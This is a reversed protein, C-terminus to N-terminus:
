KMLIIKRVVELHGPVYARVFYVGSALRSGDFILNHYGEQHIGEALTAVRRGMINYVTVTLEARQPLGVQVNLTPNFPNPYLKSISYKTPLYALPDTVSLSVDIQWTESSYTQMDYQDVALVRWWYVSAELTDVAVTDEIGADFTLPETFEEDTSIQLTYYVTDQPDPDSAANWRFVLPFNNEDPFEFENEPSILSFADPADPIFTSFSWGSEFDSCETVNSDIDTAYVRWYFSTDDPLERVVISTDSITSDIYEAFDPFVSMQITYLLTDGPDPDSTSEWVLLVTDVMVTASEEPALMCFAEPAEPFFTSFHFTDSAWMGDTNSDTARVTWYYDHDDMLCELLFTTDELAETEVWKTSLDSLTDIWVDYAPTDYPDADTTSFWVLTCSESTLTSDMEPLSLDFAAPADPVNVSFSRPVDTDDAWTSLGINDVAKVRYYITSDDPLSGEGASIDDTGILPVLVEDASIISSGLKKSNSTVNSSAQRISASSNSRVTKRPKSKASIAKFNDAARLKGRQISAIGVDTLASSPNSNGAMQYISYFTDPTEAYYYSSFDSKFSWEVSYSVTQGADLDVSTNWRVTVQYDETEEYGDDPSVYAFSQPPTNDVTTFSWIDSVTSDGCSDIAVVKWYYTTSFDLDPTFTTDVPQEAALTTPPTFADFYIRYYLSDGDPDDYSWSLTSDLAIDTAEDSPYPIPSTPPQNIFVKWWLVTDSGPSVGIIDERGDGDLDGTVVDDAYNINDNLVHKTYTGGDNTWFAFEGSTYGSGAFDYDGDGDIDVPCISHPGDVEGISLTDREWTSADGAANRWFDFMDFYSCANVADLDGDDDMDVPRISYSSYRFSFLSHEIWGTGTGGDNEWWAVVSLSKGYTFLDVDGDEDIDASSLSHYVESTDIILETWSTATGDENRWWFLGKINSAGAIDLDGDMDIDALTLEEFYNFTDSIVNQTWNTGDGNTNEWWTLVGMTTYSGALVDIDGDDDMDTPIVINAFDFDTNIYNKNWLTGKGGDNEWWFLDNDYYATGLIDQDGDADIDATAVTTIYDTNITVYTPDMRLTGVTLDVSDSTTFSWVPGETFGYPDFAVIRWYYTTSPAMPGGLWDHLDYYEGNWDEKVMPPETDTGFYVEYTRADNEYDSCLWSLDALRSVSTAGDAPFPHRPANPAVNDSTTFSWIDSQTSDGLSDIASVRWYYTTEYDLSAGTVFTSTTSDEVVTTPPSTDDAFVRYYFPHGEPDSSPDWSLTPTLGIGTEGNAPSPNSPATPPDNVETTFSWIESLTSDGLSGMTEVRWYYTTGYDLDTATITTDTTSDEVVTTPPTFDDGYVRYYFFHGEEDSSSNWVLTTDVGIDTSGSVPVPNSAATPPDNAETTFSWTESLTSDGMSGMTEVRWYYTTGYELDTAAITTDTTSDEVVTVPPTVTDGYIRYYFSHGEEDSSSNWTLTTDIGIDTSGSAPVPNSAATPPDNVETTFSWIDGQTTDGFDDYAVIQWFYTTEYSLTGPAYFTDSTTLVYTAPPSSSGTYLDYTLDDGEPDDCSWRLTVGLDIDTEEDAPTIAVPATPAQNISVAWWTIDGADEATGLVDLDGDGDMDAAYVIKAGDFDSDVTHETWSTGGGDTNEWWAIDNDITAGGLVDVDGDGDMDAAHVGTAGDFEGDIAHESWITGDGNTNEWWVIDNIDDAAGLIDMDGDGDVDAAEVCVAGTFADDVAHETWSTGSGDANEWWSIDNANEAAGLVDIDGDGDMDASSVYFAGDFSGDVTHETWTTGNGNTNQWWTIDDANLAAGLVDMHGDGDVDAACVSLAGDYDGDIAHETWSSGSGDTNEWWTIDDDNKSAGLVDVDGDGDVDAAHVRIAGSFSSRLNQETWSTGLGDTNKWLTIDGGAYSAGLVDLDGDNDVDVAQVSRAGNFEGDITHEAYRINGEDLASCTTFSWTPSSTTDIGDDIRIRWYYTTNEAMPGALTEFPDYYEGTWDEKALPPSASTGFYVDYTLSQNEEDLCLWKLDAIRAVNEANDAPFQYYPTDPASNDKTTFSWTESLTSDGMSGRTVVRWYYTTSYELDTAAITTDTTSDEQVTTPPSFDDGYVRYYFFHGEEDFSSNWTLTTDVGIDTSGSAPVPNSAATPPDNTETTFTWIDSQASDGYEDFVTLRWYYTTVWELTGTACTTDSISDAQITTPPTSTDGYLRYLLNDGEPDSGANWSLTLEVDTDTALDAPYPTSPATPGQNISIEWWAIDDATSAAGLLDMNGDGNVDVACVSIAGDFAGDVTHKTWSTGSSDANEWWIIDDAGSATGLVDMDGDGDVDVAYVSIAGDFEADVTRETWSTGSGDTNEWWTITNALKSAGLVDMDGDDDVDAAYISIAGDLNNNLIHETWSTGSGDTNEWWIFDDSYYAAGLFDMDGDGDVDAAYIGYAYDFAGDVIHETWSTGNGDANEWWTIDDASSAAGLVDLDGDGDMDEAYVSVAADFWNDVTHETWTTGSGNTNEWWTIADDTFAAGLVDMDGDGDVDAAYVSRAGGFADDVMHETWSTGSGDSNEWWIIDNASEAAGLIDMDGDGDVDAAYVDYAADFAGDVLHEDHRITGEGLANCTTFSWIPSTTTDIGDDAVIKWYYTTNEAMPGALANYIDFYEGPWEEEVLPPDDSTGFYIDFSLSDNYDDSCLWSLDATRQIGVADDHPFVADPENPAVNGVTSFTWSSSAETTDGYEDVAIVWWEYQTDYQLRPTTFTTDSTTDMTVFSGPGTLKLGSIQLPVSYVDRYIKYYVADGEPDVSSNWSLTPLVSVNVAEDAPSLLTPLPPARNVSTEWWTIDDALEAAGLLDLDGDGDMDGASIHNAGNFGTIVSHVSWSTGLGDTNEWWALSDGEYAAGLIDSDGDGDMDSIGVYRAGYCANSVIHETWSTGTGDDNEWWTISDDYNAAGLIDVDGDDDVDAAHVWAAGDYEADVTHKAWTTDYYGVNEWWTIDNDGWSAGLIDMDGDDDVDASYVSYTYDYTTDVNHKTWTTGNGETNEWWSVDGDEAASGFVDLDGDGDLDETFACAAGDVADDVTHETWSTGSGDSNEWWTVADGYYSAALVDPDGDADMDKAVVTYPSTYSADVVHETWSTGSGDDNEWWSVSYGAREATLIDMDGDNDMDAAVARFAGDYESDVTSSDHYVPRGEELTSCTTFLWISSATSDVGDKAVIKWYYTTNEAMPGALADYIDFYEGAWNSKVLPPTASTGFYIDYTLSDSDPDICLWSLDAVRQVSTAASDPFPHFPPYPPFSQAEGAKTQQPIILALIILFIILSPFTPHMRM